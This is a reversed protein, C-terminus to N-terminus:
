VRYRKAEFVWGEFMFTDLNACILLSWNLFWMGVEERIDEDTMPENGEQQVSLLLDLLAYGKRKQSSEETEEESRQDANSRLFAERRNAIVQFDFILWFVEFDNVQRTFDTVM